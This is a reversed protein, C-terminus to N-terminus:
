QGLKGSIRHIRQVDIPNAVQTIEIQTVDDYDKHHRKRDKVRVQFEKNDFMILYCEEKKTSGHHITEEM